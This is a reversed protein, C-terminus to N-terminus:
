FVRYGLKKNAILYSAGILICSIVSKFLGVATGFSYQGGSLGVRYVFTDIIDASGIVVSNYLNYVQDFGVNLVNGMNLIVNLVVFPMISKLTIHWTQQLRNAGDIRAAEYLAPDVGSIAATYIMGSFGAEQWLNTIVLVVRFWTDDQMFLIPNEMGLWLLIQNVIGYQSFVSKVLGGLITWSLFHPFTLLSQVLTRIKQNKVENMLLSLVLAFILLTAIKLVAIVLTNSLIQYFDQMAFLKKFYRLGIFEQQFMGKTPNYKQFALVVGYMPVYAFLLTALFAPLMILYLSGSRRIRNRIGKPVGASANMKQKQVM